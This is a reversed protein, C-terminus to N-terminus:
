NPFYDPYATIRNFILPPFIPEVRSHVAKKKGGKYGPNRQSTGIATEERLGQKKRSGKKLLAAPILM